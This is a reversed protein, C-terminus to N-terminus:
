RAAPATPVFERIASNLYRQGVATPRIWDEHVHLLGRQVCRELGVRVSGPPLGTRAAILALPFGDRLRLAVLMFELALDADSLTKAGTLAAASGAKDLYSAPTKVRACRIVQGDRTLKTHGGAGIGLYDGFHWYNLNHRCQHGPRAHASVEYHAYGAKDLEALVTEEIAGQVAEPPLSPPQSFFVTNPEITLQYCSLHPAGTSIAREVDAIALDPTQGPLGYMLDLNLNDFHLAALEVAQWAAAGDHVRGLAQLCDDDFSQVGVSLRNVGAARYGAFRAAEAAGPNAELTIEADVTLLDRTQLTQLLRGISTASFLSPTGGGFYVSSFRRGALDPLTVDLDAILADVYASEPLERRLEHSNFDCYPCKRVCWPLHVYLGVPITSGEIM